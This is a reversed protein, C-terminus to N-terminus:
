FVPEFDLEDYKYIHRESGLIRDPDFCRWGGVECDWYNIYGARASFNTNFRDKPNKPLLGIIKPNKTGWAEREEGTKKKYKFHVHGQKLLKNLSDFDIESMIFTDEKRMSIGESRQSIKRWISM